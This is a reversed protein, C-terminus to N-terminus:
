FHNFAVVLVGIALKTAWSVNSYKDIQRGIGIPRAEASRLVLPAM